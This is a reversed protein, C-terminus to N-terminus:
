YTFGLKFTYQEFSKNESWQNNSAFGFNVGFDLYVLSRKTKLMQFNRGYRLNAKVNYINSTTLLFDPEIINDWLTIEQSATYTSLQELNNNLNYSLNGATLVSFFDNKFYFVKKLELDSIINTYSEEAELIYEASFIDMKANFTIEWKNSYANHPKALIYNIAPVMQLTSYNNVEAITTMHQILEDDLYQEQIFETGEGKLIDINLSVSHILDEKYNIATFFSYTKEEFDGTYRKDHLVLTGDESEELQSNYGVGSLLKMKHIYYEIQFEGGYGSLYYNRTYSNQLPPVAAKGFGLTKFLRYTDNGLVDYNIKERGTLLYLNLGLKTKNLSYIFSPYAELKFLKNVPRPDKIRAGDGVMYDVQIGASFQNNIMYGFGGALNIYDKIYLGFMSDALMYPNHTIPNMRATWGVDEQQMNQYGINGNFVMKNIKVSKQSNFSYTQEEPSQQAYKLDGEKSEFGLVFDGDSLFPSFVTGAFNNTHLWQNELLLRSSSHITDSADQSKLNEAFSFVFFIAIFIKINTRKM